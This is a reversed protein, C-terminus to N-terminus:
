KEILRCKRLKDDTDIAFIENNKNLTFIKVPFPFILTYLYRGKLDFKYIENGLVFDKEKEIFKFSLIYISDEKVFIRQVFGILDYKWIKMFPGKHKLITKFEEILKGEPSYKIIRNLLFKHAVFINDERGIGILISNLLDAAVRAESNEKKMAEPFKLAEHFEGIEKGEPSLIKILFEKNPNLIEVFKSIYIYGKKNVVIGLPVFKLKILKELNGNKDFIQIRRNGSDLIYIKSASVFIDTPRLFQSPGQGKEGITRKFSGDSAFVQVRHNDADVVYINSDDIALSTPTYFIYNYDNENYKIGEEKLYICKGKEELGFSM